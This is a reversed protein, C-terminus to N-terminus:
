YYKFKLIDNEIQGWIIMMDHPINLQNPARCCIWKIDTAIIDFIIKIMVLFFQQTNLYIPMRYETNESEDKMENGM